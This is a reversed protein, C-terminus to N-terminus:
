EPFVPPDPDEDWGEDPEPYRKLLDEVLRVHEAEEARFEEAWKKMEGDKATAVLRDFFAFARREAGLAMQLAHWPTMLYHAEDIGAAEPGEFDGWKYDSARLDPLKMASARELIEQAHHQEHSALKRFLQALEPNNHVDMQDALMLYRDTADVEIMYAHALLEEVTEISEPGPVTARAPPTKESM